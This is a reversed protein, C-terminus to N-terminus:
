GRIKITDRKSKIRPGINTWSKESQNIFQISKLTNTSQGLYWAELFEKTSKTNGKDLIEVNEWDFTHGYNEVHVHKYVFM